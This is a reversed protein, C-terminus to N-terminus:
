FCPMSWQSVAQSARGAVPRVADMVNIIPINRIEEIKALKYQKKLETHLTTNMQGERIRREQELMLQPSGSVM